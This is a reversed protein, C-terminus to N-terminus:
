RVEGELAAFLFRDVWTDGVRDSEKLRGEDRFGIFRVIRLGREDIALPEASVRHLQLTGFAEALILRAAEGEMRENRHTKRMLVRLKASRSGQDLNYLVAEGLFEDDDPATIAFDVRGSVDAVVSAWEAVADRTLSTTVGIRRMAEMDSVLDFMADADRAEIPRLRVLNGTVEKSRM